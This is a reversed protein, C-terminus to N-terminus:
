IQSNVIQSIEADLAMAYEIGGDPIAAGQRNRRQLRRIARETANFRSSIPWLYSEDSARFLRNIQRKNRDTVNFGAIEM